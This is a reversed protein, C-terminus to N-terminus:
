ADIEGQHFAYQTLILIVGGTQDHDELLRLGDIAVQGLFHDVVHRLASPMAGRLHHADGREVAIETEGGHAGILDHETLARRAVDVARLADAGGDRLLQADDVTLGGLVAHEGEVLDGAQAAAGEGGDHHDVALGVAVEGGLLGDADQALEALSLGAAPHADEDALAAAADGGARGAHGLDQGTVHGGRVAEGDLGGAADAHAIQLRDHVDILAVGEQVAQHAHVLGVGADDDLGHAFVVVGRELRQEDAVVVGAEELLLLADGQAVAAHDIGGADVFVDLVGVAVLGEVLGQVHAGLGDDVLDLDGAQGPAAARAEGGPELPVGGAVGLALVLVEDAVGVLAIGAREHVAGDDLGVGVAQDLAHEDARPGDARAVHVDVDARLIRQGDLTQALGDLLGPSSMRPM